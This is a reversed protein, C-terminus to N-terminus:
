TASLWNADASDPDDDIDSLTGSLAHIEVIADPATRGSWGVAQPRVAMTLAASNSATAFTFSGPDESSAALERLGYGLTSAGAVNPFVSGATYNAPSGTTNLTGNFNYCFAGWLTDASGWSPTLSPPDPTLTSGPAVASAELSQAGSIRYARATARITQTPATINASSPESGDCVRWYCWIGAGLAPDTNAGGLNLTIGSWSLNSTASQNRTGLVVVLLEGSTIGSPLSIPQSLAQGTNFTDQPSGQVQPFAV